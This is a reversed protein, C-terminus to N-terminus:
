EFDKNGSVASLNFAGIALPNLHKKSFKPSIKLGVNEAALFWEESIGKPYKTPQLKAGERSVSKSMVLEVVNNYNELAKEQFSSQAVSSILSEQNLFKPEATAVIRIISKVNEEDFGTWWLDRENPQRCIELKELEENTFLNGLRMTSYEPVDPSTSNPSPVRALSLDGTIEERSFRSKYFSLMFFLGDVKKYYAVLGDKFQPLRSFGLESLEDTLYEVLKSKTM